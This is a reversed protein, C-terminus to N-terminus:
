RMISGTARETEHNLRRVKQGADPIHYKEFTYAWVWPNDSWPCRKANLTDWIHQYREWATTNLEMDNAPECWSYSAPECGEAIADEETIEQLREVRVSLIKPAFRCAWRPMFIYPRWQEDCARGKRKYDLSLEAWIDVLREAWEEPIQHGQILRHTGDARYCVWPLGDETWDDYKWTERFWLRDGPKAPWCEHFEGYEDMRWVKGEEVTWYPSYPPVRRQGQPVLVLRRTQTKAGALYRQMSWTSMLIPYATM